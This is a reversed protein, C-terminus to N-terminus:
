WLTSLAKKHDRRPKIFHNKINNSKLQLKFFIPTGNTFSHFHIYPM